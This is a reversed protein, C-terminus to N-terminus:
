FPDHEKMITLKHHDLDDRDLGAWVM